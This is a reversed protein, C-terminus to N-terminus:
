KKVMKQVDIIPIKRKSKSGLEEMHTKGNTDVFGGNMLTEKEQDTLNYSVLFQMYTGDVKPSLLLNEIPDSSTANQRDINFTYTHYNPGNQIYVISETNITVGDKFSINKGFASHKIKKLNEKAKELEVLLISKHKSEALSIRKSTLTFSKDKNYVNEPIYDARCSYASLMVIIALCLRILNKRM